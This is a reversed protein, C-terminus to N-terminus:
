QDRRVNFGMFSFFVLFNSISWNALEFRFECQFETQFRNFLKLAHCVDWQGLNQLKWIYKSFNELHSEVFQINKQIKNEVKIKLASQLMKNIARSKREKKESLTEYSLSCLECDWAGFWPGCTAKTLHRGNKSIITGDDWGSCLLRRTHSKNDVCLFFICVLVLVFHFKSNTVNQACWKTNKKKDIPTKAELQM